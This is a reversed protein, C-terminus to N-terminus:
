VYGLVKLRTIANRLQRVNGLAFPYGAIERIDETYGLSNAILQVDDLREALSYTKLVFTSLRHYLDERFRGAIVEGYLNKNTACVVRTPINCPKDAGVIYYNGTDLYKLLKLQFEFSMNGIEDLFLTGRHAAVIKGTRNRTASTFSGAIHGFLESELLTDSIAGCNLEVFRDKLRFGHLAKALMDKGTGTPGEILVPYNYNSLLRVENKTVESLSHCTLYKELVIETDISGMKNKGCGEMFSLFQDDTFTEICATLSRQSQLLLNKNATTAYNKQAETVYNNTM